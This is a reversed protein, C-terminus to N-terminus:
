SGGMKINELKKPIYVEFEENEIGRWFKNYNEIKSKLCSM